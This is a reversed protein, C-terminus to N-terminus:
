QAAKCLLSSSIGYKLGLIYRDVEESGGSPGPGIKLADICDPLHDYIELEPESIFVPVSVRAFILICMDANFERKIARSAMGTITLQQM